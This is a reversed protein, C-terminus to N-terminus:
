CSEVEAADHWTGRCDEFGPRDAGDGAVPTAPPLPPALLTETM